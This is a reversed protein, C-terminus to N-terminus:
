LWRGHRKGSGSGGGTASLGRSRSIGARHPCAYGSQHRTRRLFLTRRRRLVTVREDTAPIATFAAQLSELMEGTMANRKEPRNMTITRVGANTTTEVLM